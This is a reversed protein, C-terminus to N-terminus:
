SFEIGTHNMGTNYSNLVLKREYEQLSNIRKNIDYITDLMNGFMYNISWLARQDKISLETSEHLAKYGSQIAEVLAKNEKNKLENTFKIFNM